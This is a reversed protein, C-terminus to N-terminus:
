DGMYGLEKLADLVEGDPGAMNEPKPPPHANAYYDELAQQLVMHAPLPTPFRKRPMGVTHDYYVYNKNFVHMTTTHQLDIAASRASRKGNANTGSDAIAFSGLTADPGLMPDGDWGWAPDERFGLYEVISPAIDVNETVKDTVKTGAPIGPGRMVLPVHLTPHVLARNSHGWYPSAEGRRLHLEGMAEGHDSGLIVLIEEDKGLEAVKALLPEVIHQDAWWLDDAYLERLYRAQEESLEVKGKNIDAFRLQDNTADKLGDSWPGGRRDEFGPRRTNPYHPGMAHVYYFFREDGEALRELTVPAETAIQEDERYDWADFGQYYHLDFDSHENTMHKRDSIMQNATVGETRFGKDDLVEALTVVEPSLPHFDFGQGWSDFDIGTNVRYRGTLYSAVSFMTYPAQSFHRTYATGQRCLADIAPTNKAEGGFCGVYDARTTDIVIWLVSCDTCTPGAAAASAPVLATGFLLAAPLFAASSARM